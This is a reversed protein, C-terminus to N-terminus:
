EGNLAPLLREMVAGVSHDWDNVEEAADRFADPAAAAIEKARSALKEGDVGVEDGLRLWHTAGIENLDFSGGISMSGLRRGNQTGYPLATAVDYAPALRINDGDLLVAFNRAHADPAKVVTNFVVMDLFAQVSRDAATISASAERLLRVIDRVGPGGFEEYKQPNGLAQCLDEQHLRRVGTDEAGMTRDFREIVIAREAGFDLYETNSIEVGLTRAARMTLHEVLAQHHLSRVGPKVIHTSPTSGRPYAWGDTTRTLTFKQQMGALSWHEGPLLWSGDFQMASLRSEIDDAPELGGERARLKERDEPHCFQVAGACDWGIAGLLSLPDRPDADFQSQVARRADDSEPLLGWLYNEVRAGVFVGEEPRLSLSLPTSGPYATDALYSLRLTGRRTRELSAVPTGNLLVELRATDPM